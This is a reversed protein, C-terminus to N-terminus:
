ASEKKKTEMRILPWLVLLAYLAASAIREWSPAYTVGAFLAIAGVSGVWLLGRESLMQLGLRGFKIVAEVEAVSVKDM